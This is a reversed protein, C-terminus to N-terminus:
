FQAIFENLDKGLISNIRYIDFNIKKNFLSELHPIYISKVINNIKHLSQLSIDRDLLFIINDFTTNNTFYLIKLFYFLREYNKYGSLHSLFINSNFIDELRKIYINFIEKDFNKIYYYFVEQFGYFYISLLDFIGEVVVLSKKNNFERNSFRILSFDPFTIIFYKENDEILDTLKYKYYRSNKGINRKEGYFKFFTFNHIENEKINLLIFNRIDDM